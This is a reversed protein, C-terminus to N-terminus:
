IFTKEGRRIIGQNIIYNTIFFLMIDVVLVYTFDIKIFYVM